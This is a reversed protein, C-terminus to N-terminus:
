HQKTRDDDEYEVSDRILDITTQLEKIQKGARRCTEQLFKKAGLLESVDIEGQSRCSSCQVHVEEKAVEYPVRLYGNGGCDPCIVKSKSNAM